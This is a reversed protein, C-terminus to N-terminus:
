EAFCTAECSNTQVTLHSLTWVASHDWQGFIFVFEAVTLFPQNVLRLDTPLYNWVRPGAASFARDGFNTRFIRWYTAGAAQRHRRQKQLNQHQLSSSHVFMNICGFHPQCRSIIDWSEINWSTKYTCVGSMLLHPPLSKSFITLCVCQILM